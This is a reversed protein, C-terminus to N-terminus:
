KSTISSFDLIRAFAGCESLSIDTTNDTDIIDCLVRAFTRFEPKEAEELGSRDTIESDEGCLGSLLEPTLQDKIRKLQNYVAPFRAQMCLLAFLMLRQVRNEYLEREAMNKLLLFSNFMRDMNKPESGISNLLLGAYFDLETKDKAHIGMHELKDNVYNRIQQGSVPVRFTMQFIEDFLAKQQNEDLDMEPNEKVGRRFFGYDIAAVFVCGECDFFNRLAELLEVAKAPALKDLENILIIVKGDQGEARKAALRAFADVLKEPPISSGDRFLGEVLNQGASSDPAIIGSLLEIVGKAIKIASDKSASGEAGSLQRILAKGMLMPLPDESNAQLLLRPNFWIRNEAYREGLSDSLMKMIGSKGSGWSGQVAITMPTSCSNIFGTVGEIYKKIGLGDNDSDALGASIIEKGGSDAQEVVRLEEGDNGSAAEM